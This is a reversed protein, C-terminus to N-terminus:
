TIWDRVAERVDGRVVRGEKCRELWVPRRSCPPPESPRPVKITAIGEAELQAGCREMAPAKGDDRYTRRLFNRSYLIYMAAMLISKSTWSVLM